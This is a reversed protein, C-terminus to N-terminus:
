SKMVQMTLKEETIEINTARNFNKSTLSVEPEGFYKYLIPRPNKYNPKLFQIERM